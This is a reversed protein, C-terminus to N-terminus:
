RDAEGDGRFAARFEDLSVVSARRSARAFPDFDDATFARGRRPDRHINALLAMMSATRSWEERRRADAM